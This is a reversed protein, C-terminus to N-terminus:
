LRQNICFGWLWVETRFNRAIYMGVNINSKPYYKLKTVTALAKLDVSFGGALAVSAPEEADTIVGVDLSLLDKYGIVPAKFGYLIDKSIFDYYTGADVKDLRLLDEAMLPMALLLAIVIVSFLKKMMEKRTQYGFGGLIGIAHLLSANRTERWFKKSYHVYLVMAIAIVLTALATVVTSAVVWMNAEMESRRRLHVSFVAAPVVLISM